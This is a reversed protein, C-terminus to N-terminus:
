HQIPTIMLQADRYGLRDLAEPDFDTVVTVDGAHYTKHNTLVGVVDFSDVSHEAGIDIMGSYQSKAYFQGSV